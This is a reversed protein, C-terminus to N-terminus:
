CYKFGVVSASSSIGGWVNNNDGKKGLTKNNHSGSAGSQDCYYKTGNIKLRVYFHGPKHMIDANLGACRFMAVLTSAGDGCNHKNAKWTKEFGGARMKVM